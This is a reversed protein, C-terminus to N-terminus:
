LLSRVLMLRVTYGHLAKQLPAVALLERLSVVESRVNGHIGNGEASLLVMHVWLPRRGPAANGLSFEQTLEAKDAHRWGSLKNPHPHQTLGRCYEPSLMNIGEDKWYVSVLHRTSFLLSLIGYKEYNINQFFLVWSYFTLFFFIHATLCQDSRCLLYPFLSILCLSWHYYSLPAEEIPYEDAPCIYTFHILKHFQFMICCGIYGICQM